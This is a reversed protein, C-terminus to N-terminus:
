GARKVILRQCLNGESNARVSRKKEDVFGAPHPANALDDLRAPIIRKCAYVKNQYAGLNM